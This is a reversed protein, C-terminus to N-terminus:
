LDLLIIPFFRSLKKRITFFILNIKLKSKELIKKLTNCENIIQESQRQNNWFEPQNMQNELEKIKEIKKEVDFIGGYNM